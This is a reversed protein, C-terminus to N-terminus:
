YKTLCEQSPFMFHSLIDTKRNKDNNLKNMKEFPISFLARIITIFVFRLFIDTSLVPVIRRPLFDGSRWKNDFTDESFTDYMFSWSRSWTYHRCIELYDLCHKKQAYMYIFTCTCTHRISRTLIITMLSTPSFIPPPPYEHGFATTINYLNAVVFCFCGLKDFRFKLM